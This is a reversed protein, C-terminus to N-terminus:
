LWMDSYGQLDAQDQPRYFLYNYTKYRSDGSSCMEEVVSDTIEPLGTVVARAQYGNEWFKSFTWRFSPNFQINLPQNQTTTIEIIWIVKKRELFLSAGELLMREAGEIDVLILCSQGSFRNDLLTDLTIIPVKTKHQESIEAWGKILSAGSSEGYIETIGNYDGVAVPYIEVEREWGNSKINRYLLQLNTQIPEIAITKINKQLALCCYYGTNAGINIFVDVHDLIKLALATEDQEYVGQIMAENGLFKFGFPTLTPEKNLNVQNRIKRIFKSLGPYKNVTTRLFNKIQKTLKM